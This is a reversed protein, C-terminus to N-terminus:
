IPMFAEPRQTARQFRQVADNEPKYFDTLHEPKVPTDAYKFNLYKMDEKSHMLDPYATDHWWWYHEEARGMWHRKIMVLLYRTLRYTIYAWFWPRMVYIMAWGSGLMKYNPHKWFGLQEINYFTYNFSAFGHMMLGASLSWWVAM